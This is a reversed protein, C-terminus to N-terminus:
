IKSRKTLLAEYEERSLTCEVLKEFESKTLGCQKAMAAVLPAGLDKYKTGFSTKTFIPTKKGHKDYFNFYAHDTNGQSFGKRLLAGEVEDRKLAM